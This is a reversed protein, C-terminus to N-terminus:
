TTFSRQLVSPNLTGFRHVRGTDVNQFTVMAPSFLLPDIDYFKRGYREFIEAFPQGYDGSANSPVKPGLADLSEDDGRVWLTVEAGYLISDNTRGIAALDNKALPPLPATGWASVIRKLDFDLELLKHMTTEVSRAVVQLSGAISSTPAVLVTLQSTAVGCAKALDEVVSAPPLQRTELAGIAVTSAESIGFREFFKERAACARMPGSGMAFYGDGKVEWGAYQAAMCAWIPQDSFVTVAPGAIDTITSPALSVTGLGGMCAEALKIGAELGGLTEIGLDLVTADAIRHVAIRLRAAESTLQDCIKAARENLKMAAMM